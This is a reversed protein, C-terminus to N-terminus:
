PPSSKTGVAFLSLGITPRMVGELKRFVPVLSNFLSIEKSPVTKGLLSGTVWWGFAGVLNFGWIKLDDYGASQMVNLLRARNYRRFHGVAKDMRNYIGPIAPVKVIITGGERLRSRLRRLIGLDDELHELVDLMVISDFQRDSDIAAADGLEVSVNKFRSTRSAAQAVFAPDADVAHIYDVAQAMLETFNGSGCGVELVTRGLHPLLQSMIWDNYAHTGGLHRLWLAQSSETV